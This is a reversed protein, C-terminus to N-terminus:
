TQDGFQCLKQHQCWIFLNVSLISHITIPRLGPEVAVQWYNKINLKWICKSLEFSKTDHINYQICKNTQSREISHQITYTTNFIYKRPIWVMQYCMILVVRLFMHFFHTYTYRLKVHFNGVVLMCQHIITWCYVWYLSVVAQTFQGITTM